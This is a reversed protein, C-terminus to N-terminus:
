RIHNQIFSVVYVSLASLRDFARACVSRRTCLFASMQLSSVCRTGPRFIIGSTKTETARETSSFLDESDSILM